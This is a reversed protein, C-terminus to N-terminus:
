KRNSQTSRRKILKRRTKRKQGGTKSSANSDWYVYYTPKNTSFLGVPKVNYACSRRNKDQNETFWNNKKPVRTPESFLICDSQGNGKYEACPGAVCGPMFSGDNPNVKPIEYSKGLIGQMEKQAYPGTKRLPLISDLSFM